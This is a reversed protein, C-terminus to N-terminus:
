GMDTAKLEVPLRAYTALRKPALTEMMSVAELVTILVKAAALPGV